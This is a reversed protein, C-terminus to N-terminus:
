RSGRFFAEREKARVGEEGSVLVKRGEKLPLFCSSLLFTGRRSVGDNKKTEETKNKEEAFELNRAQAENSIIEFDFKVGELNSSM